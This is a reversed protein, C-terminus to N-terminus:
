DKPKWRAIFDIANELYEKGNRFRGLGTNCSDCIYDRADGTLHDHSLVLKATVDVIGPKKCIPCEWFAGLAPKVPKTGDARLANNKVGDVGEGRCETCTPRRITSGDSRTQNEDFAVAPKLTFCLNCIKEVEDKPTEGADKIKKRRASSIQRPYDTPDLPRVDDESLMPNRGGLPMVLEVGRRSRGKVMALKGSKKIVVWQPAKKNM